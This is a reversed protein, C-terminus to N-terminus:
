LSPVACSREDVVSVATDQVMPQPDVVLPQGPFAPQDFDATVTVPEGPALQVKVGWVPHGREMGQTAFVPQGNVKVSGVGIAGSPGYLHVLMSTTGYPAGPEDNRGSIYYTLGPPLRDISLEASVSGSVSGSGSECSGTATYTVASRVFSDIKNGASNNFAVSVWPSAQAPVAGGLATGELAQEVAPDPSWVQVHSGGAAPGLARWWDVPSISGRKELGAFVQQLAQLTVVDKKTWDGAYRTYIDRSFFMEANAADITIGDVTVPGSLGILGAVTRPDLSVVYDATPDLARHIVPATYPYHRSLNFGWLYEADSGWLERYEEPLQSLDQKVATEVGNAAADGLAFRGGSVTMKLYAGYFGGGSGRAESPQSLVVLWNAPKGVGVLDPLVEALGTGEVLGHMAGLLQSQVAAFKPRAPGVVSSPDIAAIQLSAAEAAQQVRQLQDGKGQLALASGMLDAGSSADAFGAELGDSAQMVTDTAGVLAASAAVTSGVGPLSQLWSLPPASLRADLSTASKRAQALQAVASRYDGDVASARIADGSRQLAQADRVALFGVAALWVVIALLGILVGVLFGRWSFRRVVPQPVDEDQVKTPEQESITM